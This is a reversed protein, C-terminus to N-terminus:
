DNRKKVESVYWDLAEKQRAPSNGGGPKEGSHDKGYRVYITGFVVGWLSILGWFGFWAVFLMTLCAFSFPVLPALVYRM